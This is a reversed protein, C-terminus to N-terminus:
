KSFLNFDGTRVPVKKAFRKEIRSKKIIKKGVATGNPQM